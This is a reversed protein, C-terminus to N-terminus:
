HAHHNRKFPIGRKSHAVFHYLRKEEKTCSGEIAQAAYAQPSSEAEFLAKYASTLKELKETSLTKQLTELNLGHLKARNGEAHCYPPMDQTLAADDGISAYSGIEVFQHVASTAGFKVHDEVIVHGGLAVKKELVCHSGMQVDHGAHAGDLLRNHDGIRTIGGGHETGVNILAHSGIQNHDGIQLRNKSHSPKIDQAATGLVSHADITNHDGISTHGEIVVHSAITNNCGISVDAGIVSYAGITTDEGIQAGKSIIATTAIHSM